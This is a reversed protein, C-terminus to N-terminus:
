DDYVAGEDNFTLSVDFVFRGGRRSSFWCLQWFMWNERLADVIDENGSWGGTSLVYRDGDIDTYSDKWRWGQIAYDLLKRCDDMSQIPWEQITFLFDDDPYGFEDFM